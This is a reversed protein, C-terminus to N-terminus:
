ITVLYWGTVVVGHRLFREVKSKSYDDDDDDDDDDDYNKLLLQCVCSLVFALSFVICICYSLKQCFHYQSLLCDSSAKTEWRV